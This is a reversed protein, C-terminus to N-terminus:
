LMPSKNPTLTPKTLEIDLMGFKSIYNPINVVFM